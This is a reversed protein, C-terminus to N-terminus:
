ETAAKLLTLNNFHAKVKKDSNFPLNRNKRSLWLDIGDDYHPSAPNGSQGGAVVLSLPEEQSFDVIMRM